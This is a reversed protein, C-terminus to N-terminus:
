FEVIKGATGPITYPSKGDYGIVLLNGNPLLHGFIPDFPMEWVHVISGKMNILLVARVSRSKGDTYTEGQGTPAKFDMPAYLLYGSHAKQPNYFTTGTAHVVPWAVASVASVLLMALAVICSLRKM